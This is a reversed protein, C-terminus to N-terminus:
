GDVNLLRRILEAFSGFLFLRGVGMMPLTSVPPGDAASGPSGAYRGQGDGSTDNADDYFILMPM